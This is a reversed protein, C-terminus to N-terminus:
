EIAWWTRNGKLFSWAAAAWKYKQEDGFKDPHNAAMIELAAKRVEFRKATIECGLIKLALEINATAKSFIDDFPQKNAANITEMDIVRVDKKGVYRKYTKGKAHRYAYWYPGHPCSKCRKNGCWVYECRYSWKFFMTM